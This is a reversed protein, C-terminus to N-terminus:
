ARQAVGTVCKRCSNLDTVDFRRRKPTATSSVRTGCIAREAYGGEDYPLAHIAGGKRIEVQHVIM